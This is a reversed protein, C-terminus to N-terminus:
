ELNTNTIKFNDIVDVDPRMAGSINATPIIKFELVYVDINKIDSIESAIGNLLTRSKNGDYKFYEAVKNYCISLNLHLHIGREISSRDIILKDGVEANVKSKDQEDIKALLPIVTVTTDKTNNSLYLSMSSIKTALAVIAYHEPLKVHKVIDKLVDGSLEKLSTPFNISYPKTTKQITYM